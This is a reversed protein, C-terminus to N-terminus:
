VSVWQSQLEQALMEFRDNELTVLKSFEWTGALPHYADTSSVKHWVHRGFANTAYFEAGVPISRFARFERVTYSSLEPPKYPTPSKLINM